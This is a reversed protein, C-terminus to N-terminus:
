KKTFDDSGIGLRHELDKIRKRHNEQTTLLMEIRVRSSERDKVCEIHELSLINMEERHARDQADCAAEARALLEKYDAIISAYGRDARDDAAKKEPEGRRHWALAADMGKTLAITLISGFIAGITATTTADM